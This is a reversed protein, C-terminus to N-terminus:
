KIESAGPQQALEKQLLERCGQFCILERFSQISRTGSIDPDFLSKPFLHFRLISKTYSQRKARAVKSGDKQVEVRLAQRQCPKFIDSRCTNKGKRGAEKALYRAPGLLSYQRAVGFKRHFLPGLSFEWIPM